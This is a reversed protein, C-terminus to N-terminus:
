LKLNLRRARDAEQSHQDTLCSCDLIALNPIQFGSLPEEIPDETPSRRRRHVNNAAVGFVDQIIRPKEPSDGWRMVPTLLGVPRLDHSAKRKPFLCVLEGHVDGGLYRVLFHERATKVCLRNDLNQGALHPAQAVVYDPFRIVAVIRVYECSRPTVLGLVLDHPVALCQGLEDVAALRRM